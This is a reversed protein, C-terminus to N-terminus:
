KVTSLIPYCKGKRKEGEGEKREEDGKRLYGKRTIRKGGEPRRQPIQEEKKREETNENHLFVTLCGPCVVSLCVCTRTRVHSHSLPLLDLDLWVFMIHLFSLRGPRRTDGKQIM